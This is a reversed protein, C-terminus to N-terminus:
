YYRPRNTQSDSDRIAGQNWRSSGYGRSLSLVSKGNSMGSQFEERAANANSVRLVTQARTSPTTSRSQSSRLANNNINNNLEYSQHQSLRSQQHQQEDQETQSEGQGQLSRRNQDQHYQLSNFQEQQQQEAMEQEQQEEEEEEEEQEQEQMQQTVAYVSSKFLTYVLGMKREVIRMKDILQAIDVANM